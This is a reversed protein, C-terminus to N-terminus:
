CGPPHREFRAELAVHLHLMLGWEILSVAHRRLRASVTPPIIKTLRPHPCQPDFNHTVRYDGNRAVDHLYNGVRYAARSGAM